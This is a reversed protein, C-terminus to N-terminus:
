DISPAIAASSTVLASTPAVVPASATQSSTGASTTGEAALALTEVSATTTTGTTTTAALAATTDTAATTPEAAAAPAATTAPKRGGTLPDSGSGSTNGSQPDRPGGHQDGWAADAQTVLGIEGFPEGNRSAPGSGPVGPAALTFDAGDAASLSRFLTTYPFLTSRPPRRIM